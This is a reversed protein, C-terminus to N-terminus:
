NTLSIAGTKTHYAEQYESLRDVPNRYEGSPLNITAHNLGWNIATQLETCMQRLENNTLESPVVSSYNNHHSKM